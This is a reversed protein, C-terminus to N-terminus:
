TVVNPVAVADHHIEGREWEIPLRVPEAQEELKRKHDDGRDGHPAGEVFRVTAGCSAPLLAFPGLGMKRPFVLPPQVGLSFGATQALAQERGVFVLSPTEGAFQVIVHRLAERPQRNVGSISDPSPAKLSSYASIRNSPRCLAIGRSATMSAANRSLSRPRTRWM